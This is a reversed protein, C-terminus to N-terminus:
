TFLYNFMIMTFLILLSRNFLKAEKVIIFKIMPVKKLKFIVTQRLFNDLILIYVCEIENVM